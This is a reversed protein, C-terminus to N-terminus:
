KRQLYTKNYAQKLTVADVAVSLEKNGDIVKFERNCTYYKYFEHVMDKTQTEPQNAPGKFKTPVGEENFVYLGKFDHRGLAKFVIIMNEHYTSDIEQIIDNRQVLHTNGAFCVNSQANKIVKKNSRGGYTKKEARKPITQSTKASTLDIINNVILNGKSDRKRPIPKNMSSVNVVNTVKNSAEFDGHPAIRKRNRQQSLSVKERKSSNDDDETRINQIDVNEGIGFTIINKSRSRESGSDRKRRYNSYAISPPNNEDDIIKQQKKDEDDKRKKNMKELFAAKKNENASQHFLDFKIPEKNNDVSDNNDNDDFHESKQFYKPNGFVDRNDIVENYHEHQFNNDRDTNDSAYVEEDRSNNYNHSYKVQKSNSKPNDSYYSEQNTIPHFEQIKQYNRESEIDAEQKEGKNTNSFRFPSCNKGEGTNHSKETLGEKLKNMYADNQRTYRNNNATSQGSRQNNWDISEEQNYADLKENSNTVINSKQTQMLPSNKKNIYTKPQIIPTFNNGTSTPSVKDKDSPRKIRFANSKAIKNSNDNIATDNSLDVMNSDSVKFDGLRNSDMFNNNLKFIRNNLNGVLNPDYNNTGNDIVLEQSQKNSYRSEKNSQNSVKSSEIDKIPYIPKNSQSYNSLRGSQGFDTQYSEGTNKFTGKNFNDLHSFDNQEENKVGYEINEEVKCPNKYRDNYKLSSNNGSHGLTNSYSQQGKHQNSKMTSILPSLSGVNLTNNKNVSMEEYQSNAQILDSRKGSMDLSGNGEFRRINSNMQYKSNGFKENQSELQKNSSIEHEEKTSGENDNQEEEEEDEEETDEDENFDKNYLESTTLTDMKLGKTNMLPMPRKVHDEDDSQQQIILDKSNNVHNYKQYGYDNVNSYDGDEFDKNIREISNVEKEQEAKIKEYKKLLNRSESSQQVESYEFHNGNNPKEINGNSSSNSHNVDRTGRKDIYQRKSNGMNISKKNFNSASVEEYSTLHKSQNPIQSVAISEDYLPRTKLPMVMPKNDVNNDTQPSDSTEDNNQTHKTTKTRYEQPKFSRTKVNSTHLQAEDIVPSNMDSLMKSNEQDYDGIDDSVSNNPDKVNTKNM